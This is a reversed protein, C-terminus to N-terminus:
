SEVEEIVRANAPKATEFTDHRKEPPNAKAQFVHAGAMGANRMADNMWAFKGHRQGGMMRAVFVAANLADAADNAHHHRSQNWYRNM